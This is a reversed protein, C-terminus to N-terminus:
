GPSCEGFPGPSGCTGYIADCQAPPITGCAFFQEAELDVCDQLPQGNPCTGLPELCDDMAQEAAAFCQLLATTGPAAAFVDCTCEAPGVAEALCTALDPYFGMEVDCECLHAYAANRADYWALCAARSDGGTTSPDATTAPEGTTGTTADTTSDGTTAPDGTTTPDGTTPDDSSATAATSTTAPDGASTPSRDGACAGALLSLLLHTRRPHKDM